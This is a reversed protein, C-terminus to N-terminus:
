EVTAADMGSEALAKLLNPTVVWGGGSIGTSSSMNTFSFTATLLAPTLFLFFLLFLAPSVLLLGLKSTQTQM